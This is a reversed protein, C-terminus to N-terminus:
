GPDAVCTTAPELGAVLRPNSMPGRFEVVVDRDTETKGTLRFAFPDEFGQLTSMEVDGSVLQTVALTEAGDDLDATGDDDLDSAVVVFASIDTGITSHGGHDFGDRLIEFAGQAAGDVVCDQAGLDAVADRFPMGLFVNVHFRGEEDDDVCAQATLRADCPWWEGRSRVDSFAVTVDDGGVGPLAGDVRLVDTTPPQPDCAAMGAVVAVVAAVAAVHVLAKM